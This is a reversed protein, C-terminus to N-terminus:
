LCKLMELKAKTGLSIYRDIEIPDDSVVEVSSLAEDDSVDDRGVLCKMDSKVRSIIAGTDDIDAVFLGAISGWDCATEHKMLAKM